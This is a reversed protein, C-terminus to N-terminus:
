IIVGELGNIIRKLLLLDTITKPINDIKPELSDIKDIDVWKYEAYEENLVIEGSMHVAYYHPLIMHSGDKKVYYASCSFTPYIKIKFNEGVEENKERRLGNVVSGDTTELKGGIFTFVGDFDAENQRKCLLVSQGGRSFVVIKQCYQFNYNTM